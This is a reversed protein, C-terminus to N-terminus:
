WGPGRPEYVPIPQDLDALGAVDPLMERLAEINALRQYLEQAKLRRLAPIERERKLKLVLEEVQEREKRRAADPAPATWAHADSV